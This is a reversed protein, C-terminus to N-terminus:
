KQKLCVYTTTGPGSKRARKETQWNDTGFIENLAGPVMDNAMRNRETKDIVSPLAKELISLVAMWPVGQSKLLDLTRADARLSKTAEGTYRSLLDIPEPVGASEEGLDAGAKSRESAVREIDANPVGTASSFQKLM